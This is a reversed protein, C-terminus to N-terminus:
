ETWKQEKLSQIRLALATHLTELCFVFLCVFFGHEIRNFKCDVLLLINSSPVLLAFIRSM